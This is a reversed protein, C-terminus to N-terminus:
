SGNEESEIAEGDIGLLRDIEGKIEAAREYKEGKVAEALQRRLTSVRESREEPSGLLASGRGGVSSEGLARRPVKGVHHTAGEHARAILPGLREEFSKYCSPCGLLGSQRFQGFTLGCGPCALGQGAPAAGSGQTGEATGGSVMYSTLLSKVPGSAQAVLGSDAACAECLHTEVKEGSSDIVVEHITAENQGCRSCQM